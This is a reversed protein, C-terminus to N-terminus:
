KGSGKHGNTGRPRTMNKQVKVPRGINKGYYDMRQAPHTPAVTRAPLDRTEANPRAEPRNIVENSPENRINGPRNVPNVMRGNEVNNVRTNYVVARENENFGRMPHLPDAYTDRYVTRYYFRPYHAVYYHFHRWPEFVNANLMVIFATNLNFWAYAPPLTAGFMWNGDELYVFEHNWVDYYCEIDPLYYYRVANVNQYAPAWVPPAINIGVEIRQSYAACSSIVMFFIFTVAFVPNISIREGQKETANVTIQNKLTEM